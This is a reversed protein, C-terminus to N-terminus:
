KGTSPFGFHTIAYVILGGIISMLTSFAAFGYKAPRSEAAIRVRNLFANNKQTALLGEPTRADVGMLLLVDRMARNAARKAARECAAEIAQTTAADLKPAAPKKARTKKAAPETM